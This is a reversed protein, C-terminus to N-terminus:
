FRRIGRFIFYLGIGILVVASLRKIYVLWKGAKPLNVLLASFTGALILVLGMGYAFSLLVTIGYLINKKTALYFLIAGLVPTTCPSIILGSILGLLFASFYGKKKLTPLKIPAPLTINFVEFMSIGFLIIVIGVFIYTVPQSAVLGFIRGALSALLGLISYTIAVGTVYAFSLVLGKLKTTEAKVGIYGVIVPILPYVCPTFGIGIGGLFANLYDVPNELLNM